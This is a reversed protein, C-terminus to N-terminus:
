VPIGFDGVIIISEDIEGKVETLTSLYTDKEQPYSSGKIITLHGRIELISKRKIVIQM